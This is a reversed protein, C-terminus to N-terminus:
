SFILPTLYPFILTIAVLVAAVWLAVRGARNTRPLECGCDEGAAGGLQVAPSPGAAAPKRGYTVYFGVGLLGLTLATFLPRYPELALLAGAGGIGLLAFILPGVCCASAAVAAGLAGVLSASRTLNKNM